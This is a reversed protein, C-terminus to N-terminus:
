EHHPRHRLDYVFSYLTPVLVNLCLSIVVVWPTNLIATVILIVGSIISCRGALRHTRNWNEPDHLTWPLKLGFTYNQQVKPLYNGLVIEMIGVLCICIFLMNIRTGLIYAYIAMNMVLSVIPMLWFLLAIPKRGINQSKPDASTLIICFLHAGLLILPLGFVGFGKGSWGDATGDLGFHTPMTDPLKPWLVLGVLIPVLIILSTALLKWKNQKLM